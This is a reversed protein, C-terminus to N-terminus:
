HCAAEARQALNLVTLQQILTEVQTPLHAASLTVRLRASGRAVTPYRIAPVMIGAERLAASADMAVSENGLIIPIIASQQSAAQQPAVQEVYRRLTRRRREGDEGRIMELAKLAAHAVGPPPATTYIFSRARNILLDVVSRSAALYGGSLGFAKSLTGMQLEIRGQLGLAAALGRGQPGLVGIAHAEDVMLWAGYREKLEVIERLPAADGDMSFISETIILVRGQATQLLRELKDLHNHPFIRMTAGSLRAADVLCAHSLKDLIVTDGPGLLAPLTGLPVAFGSSFTLAAETSKFDALAEELDAHPRMSGCVLRSAGSGAGFLAVGELLAAKLESSPALGLYDNSSFNLYSKGEHELVPSQPSDMVRLQRWLGDKRLQDLQSQIEWSM